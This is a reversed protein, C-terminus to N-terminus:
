SLSNLWKLNVMYASDGFQQYGTTDNILHCNELFGEKEMLSQSEPWQVPVYLSSIIQDVERPDKVSAKIIDIINM